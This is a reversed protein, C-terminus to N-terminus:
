HIQSFLTLATPLQHLVKVEAVIETKPPEIAEVTVELKREEQRTAMRMPTSTQPQELPAMPIGAELLATQSFVPASVPRTSRHTGLVPPFPPLCSLSPTLNLTVGLPVSTLCGMHVSVM